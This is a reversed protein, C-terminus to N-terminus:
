LVVDVPHPSGCPRAPAASRDRQDRLVVDLRELPDLLHEPHLEYLEFLKLLFIDHCEVLLDDLCNADSLDIRAFFRLPYSLSLHALDDSLRAPLPLLHLFFSHPGAPIGRWKSNSPSLQGM